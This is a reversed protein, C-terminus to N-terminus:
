NLRSWKVPRLKRAMSIALAAKNANQLFAPSLNLVRNSNLCYLADVDFVKRQKM